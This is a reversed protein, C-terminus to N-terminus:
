KEDPKIPQPGSVYDYNGTTAMLFSTGASDGYGPIFTKPFILRSPVVAELKKVQEPSLNIHLARINDHLHEVKRGGVLPFVYPAAQLAYALAVATVTADKHENAVEELAESMKVQQENQDGNGMMSRMGEGQKKREEIAAKSQFKGGGLANWPAIAMQELRCMDFIDQEFDREAVSFKGQYIVFQSMGHDRAYQNCRTVIYSPTDSIGLYLVKGARVLDNLSQMVEECSTTYEWWHVYLIDIYSTKLKKLSADVSVKLSKSHNGCYNSQDPRDSRYGTTAKTAIVMEDRNGRKEMWEGLWQESEQQQYNNATDIFNGGAEVFADLLKFSQEKNMSGMFDSWAEGISMAGLQLPSVRLGCTPSLIRRRGLPTKPEPAPAFLSM